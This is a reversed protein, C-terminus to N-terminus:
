LLMDWLLKNTNRYHTWLLCLFVNLSSKWNYARSDLLIGMCLCWDDVVLRCHRFWFCVVSERSTSDFPNVILKFIFLKYIIRFSWTIFTHFIDCTLPNPSMGSLGNHHCYCIRPHTIHRSDYLILTDYATLLMECKVNCGTDIIFRFCAIWIGNHLQFSSVLDACSYLSSRKNNGALDWQFTFVKSLAGLGHYLQQSTHSCRPSCSRRLEAADLAVELPLSSPKSLFIACIRM